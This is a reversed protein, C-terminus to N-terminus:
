DVQIKETVPFYDRPEDPLIPLYGRGEHFPLETM